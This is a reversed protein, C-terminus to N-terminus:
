SIHDIWTSQTRWRHGQQTDHEIKEGTAACNKKGTIFFTFYKGGACIGHWKELYSCWNFLPLLCGGLFIYLFLSVNAMKHYPIPPIYNTRRRPPWWRKKMTKKMTRHGFVKFDGCYCYGTCQHSWSRGPLYLSSLSPYFLGLCMRMNYYGWGGGFFSCVSLSCAKVLTQSEPM